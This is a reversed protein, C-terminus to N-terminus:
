QQFYLSKHFCRERGFLFLRSLRFVRKGLFALWCGMFRPEQNAQILQFYSNVSTELLYIVLGSDFSFTQFKWCMCGPFKINGVDPSLLSLFIFTQALWGKIDHYIILYYSVSDIDYGQFLFIVLKFYNRNPM